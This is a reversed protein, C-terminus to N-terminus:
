NETLHNAIIKRKIQLNGRGGIFQERKQVFAKSKTPKWKNITVRLEQILVRNM